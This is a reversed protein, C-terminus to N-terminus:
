LFIFYFNNGDGKFKIMTTNLVGQEPRAEMALCLPFPQHRHAKLIRLKLLLFARFWYFTTKIGPKLPCIGREREEEKKTIESETWFVSFFIFNPLMHETRRVIIKSGSRCSMFNSRRNLSKSVTPHPSSLSSLSLNISYHMAGMFLSSALNSLFSALGRMQLTM